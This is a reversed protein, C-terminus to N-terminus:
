MGVLSTGSFGEIRCGGSGQEGFVWHVALVSAQPGCSFDRERTDGTAVVLEVELDERGITGM